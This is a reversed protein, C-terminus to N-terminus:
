TFFEEGLYVGLSRRMEAMWAVGARMLAARGAARPACRFRLLLLSNCACMVNGRVWSVSPSLPPTREPLGRSQCQLMRVRSLWRSRFSPLLLSLLGLSCFSFPFPSFSPIFFVSLLDSLVRPGEPWGMRFCCSCSSCAPHPSFSNRFQIFM